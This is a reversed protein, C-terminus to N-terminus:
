VPLAECGADDSTSVPVDTPLSLLDEIQRRATRAEPIPYIPYVHGLGNGLTLAADTGAERLCTYLRLVDPYLIERTGVFLNVPPLGSLDGYLPSVRPDTLPLDGAWAQGWIRENSACILPDKPQMAAIGPHSLSVDAWPSLLILRLPPPLGRDRIQEALSLALGGGSSDGLLFVRKDQPLATYFDLMRANVEAATHAPAKPYLPIVVTMGTERALARYFEWHQRRPQRVYGGGHLAVLRRDGPADPLLTYIEMGRYVDHRYSMGFRFGRPLSCPVDNHQPLAPLDRRVADDSPAHVFLRFFLAVASAMLSRAYRRHSIGAAVGSLFLCGGFIGLPCLWSM